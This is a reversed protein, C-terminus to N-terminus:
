SGISLGEDPTRSKRGLVKDFPGLEVLRGDNLRAVTDCHRITSLRHAVIIITRGERRLEELASMVAAEIVDDLSSTAEDLVLIPLVLLRLRNNRGSRAM